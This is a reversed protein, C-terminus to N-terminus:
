CSGDGDGEQSEDPSLIIKTFDESYAADSRQGEVSKGWYAVKTRARFQAQWTAKSALVRQHACDVCYRTNPPREPPIEVSRCQACLRRM